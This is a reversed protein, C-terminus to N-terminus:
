NCYASYILIASFTIFVIKIYGLTNQLKMNRLRYCLAISLPLTLLTAARYYNVMFVDISVFLYAFFQLIVVFRFSDYKGMLAATTM